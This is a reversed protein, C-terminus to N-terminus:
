RNNSIDKYQKVYESEKSDYNIVQGRSPYVMGLENVAIDYVENYDISSNIESEYSNNEAKLSDLQDQLEVM